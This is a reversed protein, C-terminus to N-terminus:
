KYVSVGRARLHKSHIVTQCPLATRGGADVDARAPQLALILWDEILSTPKPRGVPPKARIILLNESRLGQAGM